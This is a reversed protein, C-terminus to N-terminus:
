LCVCLSAHCMGSPTFSPQEELWVAHKRCLPGYESTRTCVLYRNEGKIYTTASHPPAGCECFFAVVPKLDDYKLTCSANELGSFVSERVESPINTSPTKVHVEFFSFTDVLSVTAPKGPFMFRICNRSVCAPSTGTQYLLEWGCVSLLHVVLACYIGNPACKNPFHVLLPAITSSPPPCYRKVEEAPIMPLLSPMFYEETALPAFILLGRFLKILDSPTFLKPSYHCSLRKDELMRLTVM